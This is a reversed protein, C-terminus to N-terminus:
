CLEETTFGRLLNKDLIINEEKFVSSGFIM